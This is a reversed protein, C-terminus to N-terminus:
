LDHRVHSAGHRGEAGDKILGLITVVIGGGRGVVVVVVMTTDSGDGGHGRVHGRPHWPRSLCRLCELM